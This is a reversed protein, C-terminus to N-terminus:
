ATLPGKGLLALMDNLNDMVVYHNNVRAICKSADHQCVGPEGTTRTHLSYPYDHYAM